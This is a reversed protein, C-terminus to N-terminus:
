KDKKRPTFIALATIALFFGLPGTAPLSHIFSCIFTILLFIFVIMLSIQADAADEDDFDNNNM